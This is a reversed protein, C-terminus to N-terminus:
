GGGLKAKFGLWLVTLVGGVIVATGALVAGMGLKECRTRTARLFAMDNQAELPHDPNIGIALLTQKVAAPVAEAVAEQVIERIHEQSRRDPGEYRSM